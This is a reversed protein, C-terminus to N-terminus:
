KALGVRREAVLPQVAVLLAGVVQIATTSGLDFEGKM